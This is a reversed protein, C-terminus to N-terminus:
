PNAYVRFIALVAMFILMCGVAAFDRGYLRLERLATRPGRHYGRAEMADALEDARRFASIMLPLAMSAATKARRLLSGERLDAGRAAQAMRIRDFEDRMTPLFRLAMAVMVAIEQTPLGIYKLPSLLKELGGILESPTTTMTLVAGSWVLAVFQWAVMAGRDLGERTIQIDLLPLTLLATGGTFFLHLLFFLGAFLILPRIAALMRSFKLRTAPVIALLFLSILCVEVWSARFVFLSLAVTSAIKVRPDVRGIASDASIFQGPSFM